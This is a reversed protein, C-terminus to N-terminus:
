EEIIIYEEEERKVQVYKIDKLLKSVEIDEVLIEEVLSNDYKPGAIRIKKDENEIGAGISVRIEDTELDRTVILVIRNQIERM